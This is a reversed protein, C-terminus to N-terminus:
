SSTCCGRFGRNKREMSPSQGVLVNAQTHSHQEELNQSIKDKGLLCTTSQQHAVVAAFNQSTSSKRKAQSSEQANGKFNTHQRAPESEKLGFQRCVSTHHGKKSCKRCAGRSCDAANHTNSGCNRCLNRQQIQAMRQAYTAFETCNTPIHDTRHCYFCPFKKPIERAVERTNGFPKRMTTTRPVQPHTPSESFGKSHQIEEETQFYDHLEHLLEQTTWTESDTGSSSRKRRKLVARQVKESFKGLITRKMQQTDIWEGKQQLQSIIPAIKELIRRQDTTSSGHTQVAQLSSLLRGIIAEENGYKAAQPHGRRPRLERSFNASKPGSRPSTRTSCRAFIHIERNQQNGPCPSHDFFNGLVPGM